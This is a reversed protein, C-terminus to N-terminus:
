IFSLLTPIHHFLLTAKIEMRMVGKNYPWWSLMARISDVVEYGVEIYAGIMFVYTSHVLIAYFMVIGAIFHHTATTFVYVTDNSRHRM